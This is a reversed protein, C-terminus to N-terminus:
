KSFEEHQITSVINFNVNKTDTNFNLFVHWDWGKVLIQLEANCSDNPLTSTVRLSKNSKPM